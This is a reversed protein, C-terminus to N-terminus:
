REPSHVDIGGGDNSSGTRVSAVLARERAARRLQRRLAFGVARGALLLLGLGHRDDPVLAEACM